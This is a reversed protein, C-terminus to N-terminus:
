FVPIQVDERAPQFILSQIEINNYMYMCLKVREKMLKMWKNNATTAHSELNVPNKKFTYIYLQDSWSESKRELVWIQRLHVFFSNKTSEVSSINEGLSEEPM